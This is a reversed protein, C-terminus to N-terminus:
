AKVFVACLFLIDLELVRGARLAQFRISPKVNGGGYVVLLGPSFEYYRVSSTIVRQYSCLKNRWVGSLMLGKWSSLPCVETGQFSTHKRAYYVWQSHNM